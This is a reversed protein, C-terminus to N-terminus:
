ANVAATNLPQQQLGLPRVTPPNDITVNCTTALVVCIDVLVSDLKPSIALVNALGKGGVLRIEKVPDSLVKTFTALLQPSFPRTSDPCKEVLTALSETVAARVIPPQREGLLRIMPGLVKVVCPKIAEGSSLTVCETLGQAAPERTDPNGQMICDAYFRVLSPLPMKAEAFGPLLVDKGAAIEQARERQIRMQNNVFDVTAAKLAKQLESVNDGTM